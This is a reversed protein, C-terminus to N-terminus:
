EDRGISDLERLIHKFIAETTEKKPRDIAAPRRDTDSEWVVGIAEASRREEESMQSNNLKELVGPVYHLWYDRSCAQLQAPDGTIEAIRGAFEDVMEDLLSLLASEEQQIEDAEDQDKVKYHHDFLVIGGADCCTHTLDLCEFCAFRTASLYLSKIIGLPLSQSVSNIDIDALDRSVRYNINYGKLMYIFPTCGGTSCQCSCADTLSIPLIRAITPSVMFTQDEYMEVGLRFMAFHASFIGSTKSQDNLAPWIQRELDAGREILWYIYAPERSTTLPPDGYEIDFDIDRFGMQFLMEALQANKPILNYVCPTDVATPVLGVPVEIDNDRLVKYIRSAHLDLVSTEQMLGLCEGIAWKSCLAVHRLQERQEKLHSFFVRWARASASLGSFKGLDHLNLVTGTGLLMELSDSCNCNTCEPFDSSNCCFRRSLILATFLISWQHQDVKRPLGVKDAAELLFPLSPLTNRYIAMHLPTLGLLDREAVAKPCRELLTKAVLKDGQM